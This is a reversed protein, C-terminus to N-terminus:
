GASLVGAFSSYEAHSEIEHDSYLSTDLFKAAPKIDKPKPGPSVANIIDFLVLSCLIESRPM